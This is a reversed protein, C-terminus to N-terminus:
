AINEGCVACNAQKAISFQQWQNTLGDFLSLQNIPVTNQTIIKVCTLAQMGSIIALVPGLIGATQCNNAPAQETKPYLCHYCASQTNNPDVVMHQGDFGTAAGIVLPTSTEVCLKNILHRTNMNDTCDLVVDVQEFIYQGLEEDLMEDIVEFETDPFQQTLKNAAQEAKNQKVDATSFLIQRPLNSIEVNDGDILIIKGVGTAALYLAAPNGLGGVGVIAITANFLAQQGSEGITNLLTQRSYKIQEQQSLM